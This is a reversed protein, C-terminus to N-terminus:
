NAVTPRASTTIAQDRESWERNRSSLYGRGGHVGCGLRSMGAMHRLALETYAIRQRPECDIRDASIASRYRAYTTKRDAAPAVRGPAGLRAAAQRKM